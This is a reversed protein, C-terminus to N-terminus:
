AGQDTSFCTGIESAQHRVGWRTLFYARGWYNGLPILIRGTAVPAPIDKFSTGSFMPKNPIKETAQISGWTHSSQSSEKLQESDHPAHACWLLQPRYLSQIITFNDGNFQSPPYFALGNQKYFIQKIHIWMTKHMSRVNLYTVVRPKGPTAM